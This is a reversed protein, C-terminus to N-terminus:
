TFESVGTNKSIHVLTHRFPIVNRVHTKLHKPWFFFSVAFTAFNNYSSFTPSSYIIFFGNELKTCTQFKWSLFNTRPSSVHNEQGEQLSLSIGSLGMVCFHCLALDICGGRPQSKGLWYLLTPMHVASTVAFCFCAMAEPCHCASSLPVTRCGAPGEGCAVSVGQNEWVRMQFHLLSPRPMTWVPRLLPQSQKSPRLVTVWCWDTVHFAQRCGVSVGALKEAPILGQWEEWAFHKSMDPLGVARHPTHLTLQM